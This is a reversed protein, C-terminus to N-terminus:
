VHGSELAALIREVDEQSVDERMALIEDDDTRRIQVSYTGPESWLMGDVVSIIYPGVEAIAQRGFDEPKCMGFMLTDLLHPENMAAEKMESIMPHPEFVLDNFNM